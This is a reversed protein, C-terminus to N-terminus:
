EDYEGQYEMLTYRVSGDDLTRRFWVRNQSALRNARMQAEKDDSLPWEELKLSHVERWEYESTM